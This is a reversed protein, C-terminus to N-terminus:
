LAEISLKDWMPSLLVSVGPDTIVPVEAGAGM